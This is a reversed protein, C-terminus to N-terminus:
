FNSGPRDITVKRQYLDCQKGQSLPCENQYVSAITEYAGVLKLRNVVGNSFIIGIEPNTPTTLKEFRYSTSMIYNKARNLSDLMSKIKSVRENCRRLELPNKPCTYSVLDALETATDSCELIIGDLEEFVKKLLADAIEKNTAKGNPM